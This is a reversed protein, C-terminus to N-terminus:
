HKRQDQLEPYLPTTVDLKSDSRRKLYADFFTHVCHNTIELQRRGDIGLAGFTRLAQRLVGSKLLAGDDSFTFHNAGEISVIARDEKFSKDYIAEVKTMIERYESSDGDGHDSLVFMFPQQIGSGVVTGFPNGDLDIGAKLRADNFCCQAATAGGLSHGFIGVRTMDLRGSFREGEASNNLWELKDLVFSVDATWAEILKSTVAELSEGSYFEPNNEPARHLVRGDPFVVTGTRYPADFGVVIYGHSALDEALTSYNLSESSSGGRFIAVPYSVDRSAVDVNLLSHGQVLSLDRTLFNILRGRQDEIATRWQQPLYDATKANRQKPDAPFWIWVVLERHTGPNPAMPDPHIDTWVYSERGVSFTGTPRPLM